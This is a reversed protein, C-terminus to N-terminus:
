ASGARRAADRRMTELVKPPLPATYRSYGEPLPQPTWKKEWSSVDIGLQDRLFSLWDGIAARALLDSQHPEGTEDVILGVVGIVPDEPSAQDGQRRYISVFYEMVTNNKSRGGVGHKYTDGAEICLSIPKSNACFRDVVDKGLGKIRAFGRVDDRLHYISLLLSALRNRYVGTFSQDTALQHGTQYGLRGVTLDALAADICRLREVVKKEAEDITSAVSLDEGAKECLPGQSSSLAPGEKTRRKRGRRGFFGRLGHTNGHPLDGGVGLPMGYGGRNEGDVWAPVLV